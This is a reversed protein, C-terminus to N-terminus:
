KCYKLRNSSNGTFHELYFDFAWCALSLFFGSTWSSSGWMHLYWKQLRNKDRETCKFKNQRISVGKSRWHFDKVIKPKDKTIKPFLDSIKLFDCCIIFMVQSFKYLLILNDHNSPTCLNELTLISWAMLWNIRQHITSNPKKVNCSEKLNQCWSLLFFFSFTNDFPIILVWLLYNHGTNFNM